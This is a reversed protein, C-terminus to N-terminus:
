ILLKEIDYFKGYNEWLKCCFVELPLFLTLTRLINESNERFFFFFLRSISLFDEWSKGSMKLKQKTKHEM